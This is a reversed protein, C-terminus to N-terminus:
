DIYGLRKRLQSAAESSDIITLLEKDDRNKVNKQVKLTKIKKGGDDFGWSWKHNEPLRYSDVGEGKSSGMFNFLCRTTKIPDNVLDEYRVIKTDNDQLSPNELINNYVRCWYDNVLRESNWSKLLHPFAAAHMRHLSKVTEYVDRVLIIKKMNRVPPLRPYSEIESYWAPKKLVIIKSKDLGKM